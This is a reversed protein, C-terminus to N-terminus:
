QAGCHSLHYWFTEMRHAPVPPVDLGLPTIESVTLILYKQCSIENYPHITTKNGEGWVEMVTIKWQIGKMLLMSLPELTGEAFVCIVGCQISHNVCRFSLIGEVHIEVLKLLPCTPIEHSKALGLALHQVQILAVGTRTPMWLLMALLTLSPIRDRHEARTLGVQLTTDLEPTFVHVKVAQLSPCVLLMQFEVFTFASNQVQFLIAGHVLVPQPNNQQFYTARCLFVQIDQYLVLQGHALLARTALFAMPIRPLMLFLMALLDLSMIRGRQEARTLCMQLASDLEPSSLVLPVHFDQLLDLPSWLPLSPIPAARVLFPQPHQAQEAELPSLLSTFETNIFM